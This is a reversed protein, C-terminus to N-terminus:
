GRVVDRLSRVDNGHVGGKGKGPLQALVGLVKLEDSHQHNQGEPEEAPNQALEAFLGLAFPCAVRQFSLLALHQASTAQGVRRACRHLWRRRLKLAM